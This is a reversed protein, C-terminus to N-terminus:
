IARRVCHSGAAQTVCTGSPLCPDRSDDSDAIACPRPACYSAASDAAEPHVLSFGLNGASPSVCTLLPDRECGFSGICPRLCLRRGDGFLVCTSEPPCAGSQCDASCLGKAGLAVCLGSSCLDNRLHDSADLCPEGIDAPVDGFCVRVWADGSARPPLTRCRLGAACDTDRSCAPLCLSAQWPQASVSPPTATLLGACVLGDACPGTQCSSVCMGQAFGGSCSTGAPCLCFLGHDCQIDSECPGGAANAMAIVFGTHTKTVLGGGAGTAVVKVTFTGPTTYRHVPALATDPATVDGFDWLYKTVTSTALPVFRLTLPVAGICTMTLPNFSPCGEVAFDVALAGPADGQTAAGDIAIPEEGADHVLPEAKSCALVLLATVLLRKM